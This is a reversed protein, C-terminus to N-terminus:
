GQFFSRIDRQQLGALKKSRILWDLRSLQYIIAQDSEPQQELFLQVKQLSESAETTTIRPAVEVEEDSEETIEPGYQALIQNEIDLPADHITEEIPNLFNKVDMLESIRSSLIPSEFAKQVDSVVEQDEILPMNESFLAKHFCRTLTEVSLDFDWALLSWRIAKLVNMTCMPDRGSDYEELIYHIWYRKWYAKWTRIIGQDLPQYRSTSNAPLWIILTNQLPFSSNQVDRTATIHASFNDMLLVVKRGAMKQDFWRLFDEFIQSTMWAKHNHNWVLKLSQINIGSAQFARPKKATGIFWIPLRESGDANSCFLASMRAKEKKKGPLSRTSLSRDPIKKWFLSTEDCNFIDRPNYASLAQRISLMEQASNESVSGEEGHQIYSKINRRSLFSSLWGNSFAPVDKGQYMPLNEWFFRAKEKIIDGSIIVQEEVQQIWEFLARELEPWHERRIRASNTHHNSLPEDLHKYHTSLIESVSSSSLKHNYTQQFWEALAKNSKTPHLRRQTRLAAKQSTPIATRRGM